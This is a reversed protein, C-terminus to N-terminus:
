GRKKAKLYPALGWVALGAAIAVGVIFEITSEQALLPFSGILVVAGAAIKAIMAPVSQRMGTRAERENAKEAEAQEEREAAKRAKEAEAQKSKQKDVCKKCIYRHSEPLYSGGENADFRRGCKLCTVEHKAM